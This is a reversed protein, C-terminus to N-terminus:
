RVPILLSQGGRLSDVRFYDRQNLVEMNVKASDYLNGNKFYYFKIDQNGPFPHFYHTSEFEQVRSRVHNGIVRCSDWSGKKDNELRVFGAGELPINYNGNIGYRLQHTFHSYGYLYGTSDKQELGNALMDYFPDNGVWPELATELLYYGTPDTYTYWEKEGDFLSVRIHHLPQATYKDRVYGTIEAYQREKTCSLLLCLCVFLFSIRM